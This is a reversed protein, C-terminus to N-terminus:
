ASIIRRTPYLTQNTTLVNTFSEWEESLRRALLSYM